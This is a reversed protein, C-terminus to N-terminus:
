DKAHLRGTMKESLTPGYSWGHWLSYLSSPGPAKALLSEADELAGNPTPVHSLRQLQKSLM